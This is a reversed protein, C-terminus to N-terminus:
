QIKFLEVKTISGAGKTSESNYKDIKNLLYYSGSDFIMKHPDYNAIDTETLNYEHKCIKNKQLAFSLSPYYKSLYYAFSTDKPQTSDAHFAMKYDTRPTGNFIIADEGVRNKLTGIIFEPEEKVDQIGTSTSDYAPTTMVNHTTGSWRKANSFASTFFDRGDKLATNLISLNGSGLFKDKAGDKHLFYNSQAYNTKFDIASKKRNVRKNTWDVANATDNCIEQLTKIKVVNNEFKYVIGFRVFFDKVVDKLSTKNTLLNWIVNSRVVTRNVTLTLSGTALTATFFRGAIEAFMLGRIVDGPNVDVTTTITVVGNTLIFGSTQLITNINKVIRTRIQPLPTSGALSTVDVTLVITVNSIESIVIDKFPNLYIDNEITSLAGYDIVDFPIISDLFIDSTDVDFGVGQNVCSIRTDNSTTSEPYLFKNVPTCVLDKFDNSNLIEGSLTLGSNTFIKGILTHYYYCPLFYNAEYILSRGWNMVAAIFGSTNLRAADIDAANWASIGFDIDSIDKGDIFSLLSVFSDYIVISYKEGDWGIIQAKGQITEIGNQVVKCDQLAYQFTGDSNVLKANQFIRNNRETDSAKITNSFSTYNKSLDGIDVRQITWAIKTDPDLDILQGGIYVVDM